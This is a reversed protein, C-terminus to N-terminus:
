IILISCKLNDLPLNEAPAFDFFVQTNEPLMECISEIIKMESELTKENQTIKVACISGNLNVTRFLHLIERRKGCNEWLVGSQNLSSLIGLLKKHFKCNEDLCIREMVNEIEQPLNVIEMTAKM